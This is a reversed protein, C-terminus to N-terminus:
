PRKRGAHLSCRWQCRKFCVLLRTSKKKAISKIKVLLKMSGVVINAKYFPMYARLDYNYETRMSKFYIVMDSPQCTATTQKPLYVMKICDFSYDDVYCHKGPNAEEWEAKKTMDMFHAPLNDLLVVRKQGSTKLWESYETMYVRFLKRNVFTSDTIGLLYQQNKHRYLGWDRVMTIKEPNKRSRKEKLKIYVDDLEKELGKVIHADVIIPIFDLQGSQRIPQM